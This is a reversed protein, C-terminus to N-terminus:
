VNVGGQVGLRERTLTVAGTDPAFMRPPDVTVTMTFNTGDPDLPTVKEITPRPKMRETRQYQESSKSDVADIQEM